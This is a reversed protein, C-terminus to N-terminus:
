LLSRRALFIQHYPVEEYLWYGDTVTGMIFLETLCRQPPNFIPRIGPAVFVPMGRERAMEYIGTTVARIGSYTNEPMCVFPARETAFGEGMSWALPYDELNPYGGLLFDPNIADLKVRENRCIRAM